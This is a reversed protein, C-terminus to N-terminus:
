FLQPSCLEEEVEPWAVDADQMEHMIFLPNEKLTKKANRM